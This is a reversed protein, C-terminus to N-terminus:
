IKVIGGPGGSEMLLNKNDPRPLHLGTLGGLVRVSKEQADDVAGRAARGTFVLEGACCSIQGAVSICTSRMSPHFFYIFLIFDPSSQQEAAKRAPRFVSM